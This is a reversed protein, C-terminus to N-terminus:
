KGPLNNELIKWEKQVTKIWNKGGGIGQEADKLFYHDPRSRQEVGFQPFNFLADGRANASSKEESCVNSDVDEGVVNEMEAPESRTSEADRVLFRKGKERVEAALRMLGQTIGSVLPTSAEGGDGRNDATTNGAAAAAHNEDTDEHADKVADIAVWDGMGEEMECFIQEEVVSIEHPLVAAAIAHDEDKNEQDEKIADNAVWDRMEEEMESISQEKIVSIEHPLVKSTTTDGWKVQVCGDDCLDIVHGVWSLDNAAIDTELPQLRVVLNGYFAKDYYPELLLDYISVTEDSELEVGHETMEFWSVRVMQDGVDVSRVVGYRAAPGAAAAAPDATLDKEDCAVNISSKSIVREGPFFEYYNLIEFPILSSSPVGRWRTGDKWLVDVTTRTNSVSMPEEVQVPRLKKRRRRVRKFLTKKLPPPWSEGKDDNCPNRFFCRDGVGWFCDDSSAFLTLNNPNKQFAPPASAKVLDRNIGLAASAVWRVLVAGMEVKVVTGELSDDLSRSYMVRQGPHFFTNMVSRVYGGDIAEVEDDVAVVTCLAGDDSLVDVDITVHVVRGLWPGSVVYDGISFERVRRVDAPSVDRAVPEGNIGHGLQVLDLTTSAEVVVGIQGGPDSASIVIKGPGMYNRDVVTLDGADEYVVAGDICIVALNDDIPADQEPHHVVLGREGHSGKKKFAVLDNLAPVAMSAEGNGQRVAGDM